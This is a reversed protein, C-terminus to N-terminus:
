SDGNLRRVLCNMQEPDLLGPGVQVQKLIVTGFGPWMVNIENIENRTFTAGWLAPGRNVVTPRVDQTKLEDETIARDLLALISLDHASAVPHRLLRERLSRLPEKVGVAEPEQAKKPIIVLCRAYALVAEKRDRSQSFTKGCQLCRLIAYGQSYEV